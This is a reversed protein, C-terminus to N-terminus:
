GAAFPAPPFTSDREAMQVTDDWSGELRLGVQAWIQDLGDGWQNARIWFLRYGHTGMVFVARSRGGANSVLSCRIVKGIAEIPFQRRGVISAFTITGDILELRLSSAYVATLFLGATTFLLVLVLIDLASGVPNRWRDYSSASIFGLALVTLIRLRISRNASLDLWWNRIFIRPSGRVVTCEGRHPGIDQPMNM